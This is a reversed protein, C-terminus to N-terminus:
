RHARRTKIAESLISLVQLSDDWGLCADTISQGYALAAADDQGPTFKQAGAQLHSEVMVGFVSHSGTALQGAIDRAVDVQKQHQKSSNAHSCDVMLTPPLKARQLDQCAAAVSAADYNPAKGGRLIVHCDRNGHTQVIAV